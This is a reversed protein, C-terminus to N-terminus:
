STGRGQRMRLAVFALGFGLGILMLGSGLPLIRLVPDTSAVTNPEAARSTASPVPVAAQTAPTRPATDGGGPARSVAGDDGPRPVGPADPRGSVDEAHGPRRPAAGAGGDDAGDRDGREREWSQGETVEHRGPRDRGEGPRGGAQSPEGSPSPGRSSSSSPSPSPSPSSPAARAGEAGYAVGAGLPAAVPGYPMVAAGTVLVVTAGVARLWPTM